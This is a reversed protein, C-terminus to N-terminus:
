EMRGDSTTTLIHYNWTRRIPRHTLPPICYQIVLRLHRNHSKHSSNQHIPCRSPPEPTPCLCLAPKPLSSQEPDIEKAENSSSRSPHRRHVQRKKTLNIKIKRKRLDTFPFRNTFTTYSIMITKKSTSAFSSDLYSFSSNVCEIPLSAQIPYMPIAALIM